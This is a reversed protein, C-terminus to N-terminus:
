TSFVNMGSLERFRWRLTAGCLRMYQFSEYRDVSSIALSQYVSPQWDRVGCLTWTIFVNMGSSKRARLRQTTVSRGFGKGWLARRVSFTRGLCSGLDRAGFACMAALEKGWLPEMSGFNSADPLCLAGLKKGWLHEGLCSWLGGAGRLCLSALM